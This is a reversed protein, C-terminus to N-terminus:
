SKTKVGPFRALDTHPFFLAAVYEDMYGPEVSLEFYTMKRAIDESRKIEDCSLFMQRAGALSSNGVFKFKSREIDPLLGIRVSNEIDLSTGFGGAIFINKVEKLDISLHRVLILTASYIAAKARKINDIDAETIVIDSAADSEEKFAIVFERGDENKRIRKNSVDKIKGDKDLAGADLMESIIDIYGSGCIGRPGAKGITEYSVNFDKRNIKVKQIAGAASRM